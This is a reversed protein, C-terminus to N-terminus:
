CSSPGIPATHVKTRLFSLGPVFSNDGCPAGYTPSFKNDRWGKVSRFGNVLSKVIGGLAQGVGSQELDVETAM